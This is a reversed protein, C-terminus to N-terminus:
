GGKGEVFLLPAGDPVSLLVALPVAAIKRCGDEGICRLFTSSDSIPRRVAVGHTDNKEIMYIQDSTVSRVFSGNQQMLAMQQERLQKITNYEKAFNTKGFLTSGVQIPQCTTMSTGDQVLDIDTLATADAVHGKGLVQQNDLQWFGRAKIEEVKQKVYNAHLTYPVYFSGDSPTRIHAGYRVMELVYEDHHTAVNACHVSLFVNQFLIEELLCYSGKGTNAVNGSSSNNDSVAYAKHCSPEYVLLLHNPDFSDTDKYTNAQIVNDLYRKLTHIGEQRVFVISSDPMAKTHQIYSPHSTGYVDLCRLVDRAMTIHAQSRVVHSVFDSVLMVDLDVYLPSYRHHLVELLPVLKVLQGYSEFNIRTSNFSALLPVSSVSSHVTHKFSLLHWFLADPYSLIYVGRVTWMQWLQQLDKNTHISQVVYVVLKYHLRETACICNELLSIYESEESSLVTLLVTKNMLHQQMHPTTNHNSYSPKYVGAAQSLIHRVYSVRASDRSQAARQAFTTQVSQKHHHLLKTGNVAAHQTNPRPSKTRSKGSRKSKRNCDTSPLDEGQTVNVLVTFPITHVNYNPFMCSMTQFDPFARRKYTSDIMFVANSVLSKVLVKPQIFTTYFYEWRKEVNRIEEKWDVKAYFTQNIHYRQCFPYLDPALSTIPLSGNPHVRLIWLGRKQYEHVKDGVYNAHLIVPLRTHASININEGDDIRAGYHQMSITWEDRFQPKSPCQVGMMGNQVLLEDYLCFTASKLSANYYRHTTNLIHEQMRTDNHSQHCSSDFVVGLPYLHFGRQDSRLNDEIILQLWRNFLAIGKDTARAYLVGTNPEIRSYDFFHPHSPTYYEQCGRSEMSMSLDAMSRLLYPVPDRVLALDADLYLVHFNNQLAELVPVLKVVSGFAGFTPRDLDYKVHVKGEFIETQKTLMLQWFLEDPYNLLYVNELNQIHQQWTISTNHHFHYVVIKMNYHQVFCLLHQLFLSYYSDVSGDDAAVVTMLVINELGPVNHRNYKSHSYIGAAQQLTRHVVGHREPDASKLLNEKFRPIFSEPLNEPKIHRVTASTVLSFLCLCSLLNFVSNWM